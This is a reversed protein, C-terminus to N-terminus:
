RNKEESIEALKQIELEGPYNEEPLGLRKRSDALKEPRCMLSLYEVNGEMGKIPSSMLDVVVLGAEVVGQVHERLVNHRVQPSRVIGGRSIGERGAEFQPKVLAIVFGEKSLIEPAVSLVKLLSIFSLDVTVLDVPEPVASRDLYRVNVGERVEVRSDQRLKWHLQGRGVDFAVVRAAGRQLLCDSFGGTSAGLDACLWGRPDIQWHDLAAELKLGGRSVYPHEPAQVTIEIDEPLQLGPKDYRADPGYVKGGLILRRAQERSEVLGRNVLLIDLREKHVKV